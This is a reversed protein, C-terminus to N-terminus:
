ATFMNISYKKQRRNKQYEPPLPLREECHLGNSHPDHSTYSQDHHAGHHGGNTFLGFQHEPPLGSLRSAVELIQSNDRSVSVDIVDYEDYVPDRMIGRKRQRRSRRPFIDEDPIVGDYVTCCGCIMKKVGDLDYNMKALKLRKQKAKAAM